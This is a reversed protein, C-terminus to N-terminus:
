RQTIWENVRQELITLPAEGMKPEGTRRSCHEEGSTPSHGFKWRMVVCSHAVFIRVKMLGADAGTPLYM